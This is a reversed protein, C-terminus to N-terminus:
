LTYVEQATLIKVGDAKVSEIAKDIEEVRFIVVANRGKM